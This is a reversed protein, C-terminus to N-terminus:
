LAKPVVCDAHSDVQLIAAEKAHLAPWYAAGQLAVAFVAQTAQVVGVHEAPGRRCAQEGALLATQTAHAALVKLGVPVCAADQGGQLTHAAPCNVTCGQVAAASM